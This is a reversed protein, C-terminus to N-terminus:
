AALLALNHNLKRNLEIKDDISALISAIRRQTDTKPLEVKYSNLFSTDVRRRGSTGALASELRNNIKEQKLFYFLFM